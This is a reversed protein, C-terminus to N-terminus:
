KSIISMRISAGSEAYLIGSMTEAENRAIKGANLFTQM